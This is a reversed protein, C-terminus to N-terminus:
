QLRFYTTQYTKFGRLIQRFIEDNELDEPRLQLDGRSHGQPASSVPETVETGRTMDEVNKMLALDYVYVAECIAERAAHKADYIAKDRRNSAQMILVYKNNMHALPEAVETGRTMSKVIEMVEVDYADVAARIAAQAALEADRIAKDRRYKAQMMLDHKNSM